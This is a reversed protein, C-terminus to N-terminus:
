NDHCDICESIIQSIEDSIRDQACKLVFEAIQKKQEDLEEFERLNDIMNGLCVNISYNMGQIFNFEDDTLRDITHEPKKGTCTMHSFGHPENM